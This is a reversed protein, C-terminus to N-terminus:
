RGSSSLAVADNAPATSDRVVLRLPCNETPPEGPQAAILDIALEAAKSGMDFMPQRVTTLPPALHQAFTDDFGVISVRRPVRIREEYLVQLAGAALLDSVAFIATLDPAQTLLRRMFDAGMRLSRWGEQGRPHGSLVMRSEALPVGAAALADRYGEFRHRLIEFGAVAGGGDLFPQGIFGIREHGLELLHEVAEAAGRRNDVVVSAAAGCLRREIEVAPIGADVAVQVNEGSVATTFIIADVRRRLLAEVSEQERDPVGQSNFLLVNFGQRVAEHQAGIAVEAVFPDSLEGHLILGITTTRQRRLEQAVVNLRYGSERLAERVRRRTQASVYGNNHIVRSVTATSVGARAAVDKLRVDSM